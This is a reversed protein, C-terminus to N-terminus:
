LTVLAYALAGYLALTALAAGIALGVIALAPAIGAPAPRAMTYRRRYRRWTVYDRDSMIGVAVLDVVASWARGIM